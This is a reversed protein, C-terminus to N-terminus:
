YKVSTVPGNDGQLFIDLQHYGSVSNKSYVGIFNRDYNRMEAPSLRDGIAAVRSRAARENAYIFVEAHRDAARERRLQEGFARMGALTRVAPPVVISMGQGGNPINWREVVQYKVQPVGVSPLSVTLAAALCVGSRIGFHKM